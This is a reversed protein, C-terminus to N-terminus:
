VKSFVTKIIDFLMLAIVGSVLLAILFELIRSLKEM